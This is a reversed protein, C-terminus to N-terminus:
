HHHVQHKSTHSGQIRKAPNLTAKSPVITPVELNPKLSTDGFNPKPLKSVTETNTKQISVGGAKMRNSRMPSSTERVKEDKRAMMNRITKPQKSLVNHHHENPTQKMSELKDTKANFSSFSSGDESPMVDTIKDNCKAMAKAINRENSKLNGIDSSSSISNQSEAMNKQPNNVASAPKQPSCVTPPCLSSRYQQM